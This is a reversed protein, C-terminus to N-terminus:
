YNHHVLKTTGSCTSDEWVLSRCAIFGMHGAKAKLNKVGPGGPFDEISLKQVFLYTLSPNRSSDPIRAGLYSM